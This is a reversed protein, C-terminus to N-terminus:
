VDQDAAPKMTTRIVSQSELTRHVPCKDAIEILRSRQESSLQGDLDIERSFIDVKDGPACTECDDIHSREHNVRVTVRELPWAKRAAYMRLTISTCGGLGASVLAYPDPGTGTGGLSSPEDLMFSRGDVFVENQYPGSKLTERVIVDHTQRVHEDTAANMLYRSAWAEIVGAAYDAIEPAHLFHDADDLSVFSKPHRAATFLESANEIAVTEDGPAHLFLTPLHLKGVLETLRSRRLDDVLRRTITFARGALQVEAQGNQEIETLQDDFHAFVHAPDAPAAITAVAKISDIMGAGVLAAAGGLSHGVLLGVDRGQEKMWEAAAVLDAVNSSFTTEEFEGGSEGLGTFDFRLVGIGRAALGRSVRLAAHSQKSCTFCHAFIAWGLVDGFPLELRGSIINGGDGAFEVSQSEM